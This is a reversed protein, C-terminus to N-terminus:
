LALRPSRRRTSDYRRRRGPWTWRSLGLTASLINTLYLGEDRGEAM